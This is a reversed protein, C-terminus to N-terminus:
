NRPRRTTGFLDRMEPLRDWTRLQRGASSSLPQRRNSWVVSMSDDADITGEEEILVDDANVPRIKIRGSTKEVYEGIPESRLRAM